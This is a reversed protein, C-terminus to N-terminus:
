VPSSGTGLTKQMIVSLWQTGAKAPIVILPAPIVNLSLAPIVFTPGSHRSPWAGTGRQPIAPNVLGM